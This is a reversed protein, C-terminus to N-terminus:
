RPTAGTREPERLLDDLLANHEGLGPAPRDTDPCGRLRFANALSRFGDPEKRVLGRAAVQPQDLMERVGLVPGCPIGAEGLLALADDRSLRSLSEEIAAGLAHRNRGREADDAFRPDTTWEPHGLVAALRAFLPDNAIAIVIPADRTAFAGFPASIAHHSGTPGITEETLLGRMAVSELLSVLSDFMAVDVHQGRGTVDRQRLAALTAIAAYLAPVMDGISIGVRVSEGGDPGTVAMIGSMAQVVLDYAPKDALPGDQGFGSISVLVLRPNAALLEEPALGLRALVGPRFNEIVVDSRKVLGRLIERGAEAKLDLTVGRKNRNLLRHYSSQGEFFPGFHRGDDGAEAEIKIVDAGLDALIRGCFPGSLVRGLDLVRIGELAGTDTM